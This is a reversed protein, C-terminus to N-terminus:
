TSFVDFIQLSTDHISVECDYRRHSTVYAQLRPPWKVAISERAATTPKPKPPGSEFRSRCSWSSRPMLRDLSARRGFRRDRWAM